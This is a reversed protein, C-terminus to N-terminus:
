HIQFTYLSGGSFWHINGAQDIDVIRGQWRSRALSKRNRDFFIVVKPSASENFPGMVAAHFFVSWGNKGLYYTSEGMDESDPRFRDVDAGINWTGMLSFTSDYYFLTSANPPSYPDQRAIITDQNWQLDFIFNERHRSEFSLQTTSYKLIDTQNFGCNAWFCLNGDNDITMKSNSCMSQMSTDIEIKSAFSLDSTLCVIYNTFDIFSYMNGNKGVCLIHHAASERSDTYQKLLNGDANYKTITNGLAIYVNELSDRVVSWVWANTTKPDWFQTTKVFAIGDMIWLSYGNSFGGEKLSHNLASVVYTVTDGINYIVDDIFFTDSIPKSNLPKSNDPSGRYINYGIVNDTDLKPWSITAFKMKDDYSVSLQGVKPIGLFKLIIPNTITGSAGTQIELITDKIEYEPLTTLIRLRYTGAALEPLIFKGSSDDPSAYTNTGLVLIIVSRNDQEHNELHVVSSCSVPASLTIDELQLKRDNNVYISDKFSKKGSGSALLNYWGKSITAFSYYGENNTKASDISFNSNISQPNLTDPLLVVIAGQAASGDGNVVRGTIRGNTVESGTNMPSTCFMVGAIFAMGITKLFTM